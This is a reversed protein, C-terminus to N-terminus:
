TISVRLRNRRQLGLILMPWGSLKVKQLNVVFQDSFDPAADILQEYTFEKPGLVSEM